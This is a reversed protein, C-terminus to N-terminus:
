RLQMGLGVFATTRVMDLPPTDSLLMLLGKNFHSVKSLMWTNIGYQYFLNTEGRISGYLIMICLEPLAHGPM